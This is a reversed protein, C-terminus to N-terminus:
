ELEISLAEKVNSFKNAITTTDSGAFLLGVVRNNEALIVSGSDGGASFGAVDITFQDVFLAIKGDGMNINVAVDVQTVEFHTTGTTRGSKKVKLGIEPEEVGEVTVLSGDDELIRPLVDEEKDPKAIACDVKNPEGPVFAELRTKRGFLEALFNCVSVVAGAFLCNSLEILSIPIFEQLKGLEDAATGGDYAGPQLVPDGVKAQNVNALVHNNSLLMWQGNKKVWAGLTGATIQYHGVSVGGPCPRRKITRDVKGNLLKIEGVEIVDTEMPPNGVAKPIVDEAALFSLPLKKKVGVVIALRGTDVGGVKKRGKGVSVVNKKKLLELTQKNM